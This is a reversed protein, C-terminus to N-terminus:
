AVVERGINSSATVVGEVSRVVETGAWVDGVRLRLPHQRLVLVELPLTLPWLLLLANRRLRRALPAASQIEDRMVVDLRMLQKGPSRGFVDRAALLAGVLVLALFGLEVAGVVWLFGMLLLGLLGAMLGDILGAYLRQKVSAPERRVIEPTEEEPPEWTETVIRRVVPSAERAEEEPPMLRAFKVMDADDLLTEIEDPRVSKLDLEPLVAKLEPSTMELADVHYRGGLYERLADITAALRQAGDLESGSAHDIGDLRELAVEIAPRPPPPPKLAEFRQRLAMLVLWTMLAAFILAGGVSLGWVLAWNTTIVAVPPPAQGLAPDAENELHGRVRLRVVASSISGEAGSALRYPLEIPPIKEVGMRVPLIRWRWTSEKRDGTARESGPLAAGVEFTGVAPTLPPFLVADRPARARFTLVLPDGLRVEQPEAASTTAGADPAQEPGVTVEVEIPPADPTQGALLLPILWAVPAM